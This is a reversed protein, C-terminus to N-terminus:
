PSKLPLASSKEALVALIIRLFTRKSSSLYMMDSIYGEIDFESLCILM